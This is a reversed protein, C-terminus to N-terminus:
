RLREIELEVLAIQQVLLQQAEGVVRCQALAEEVSTIHNSRPAEGLARCLRQIVTVSHGLDSQARWLAKRMEELKTLQEAPGLVPPSLLFIGKEMCKDDLRDVKLGAVAVGDVFRRKLFGWFFGPVMFLASLWAALNRM